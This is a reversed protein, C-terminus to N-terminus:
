PVCTGAVMCDPVANRGLNQEPIYLDNSGSGGDSGSSGGGGSGEDDDDLSEAAAKGVATGVIDREAPSM